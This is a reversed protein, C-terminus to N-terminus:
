TKVSRFRGVGLWNQGDSASTCALNPRRYASREGNESRRRHGFPKVQCHGLVRRFLTEAEAGLGLEFYCRGLALQAPVDRPWKRLVRLQRRAERVSALDATAPGGPAERAALELARQAWGWRQAGAMRLGLAHHPALPELAPDGPDPDLPTPASPPAMGPTMPTSPAPPTGTSKVAVPLARPPLVAPGDGGGETRPTAVAVPIPQRDPHRFRDLWAVVRRVPLRHPM